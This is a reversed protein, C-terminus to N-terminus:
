QADEVRFFRNQKGRKNLRSAGPMAPISNEALSTGILTSECTAPGRYRYKLLDFIVRVTRMQWWSSGSLRNPRARQSADKVSKAATMTTHSGLATRHARM